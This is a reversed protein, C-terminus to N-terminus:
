SEARWLVSWIGIGATSQVGDWSGPLAAVVDEPPLHIPTEAGSSNVWVVVGDPAVVRDVEDHFLFCNVLVVADARGPAMPLRSGDALVRHGVDPPALRLMELSVDVAVVEPWRRALEPTYAGIGSGLEVCVDGRPADPLGRELADNVVSDRAPSTRTHWEPALGDFYAAVDACATEDWPDPHLGAARRTMIRMPHDSSGLGSSRHGEIAVPDLTTLTGPM